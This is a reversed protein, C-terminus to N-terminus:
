PRDLVLVRTPAGDLQMMREFRFGCRELVRASRPNAPRVMGVIRRAGLSSFGVATVGTVFETAFGHGWRDPHLHYSLNVGDVDARRTLGGFGILEGHHHIAWVGFGNKQWHDLARAVRAASEEPPDITANPRHAVMVALSFLQTFHVVDGSGIPRMALRTTHWDIVPATMACM